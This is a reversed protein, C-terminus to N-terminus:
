RHIRPRGHISLKLFHFIDDAFSRWYFEFLFLSIFFVHYLCYSCSRDQSLLFINDEFLWTNQCPNKKGYPCCCVFRYPVLCLNRKIVGQERRKVHKVAIYILKFSFTLIYKLSINPQVILSVCCLKIRQSFYQMLKISYKTSSFM